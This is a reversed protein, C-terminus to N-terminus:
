KKFARVYGVLAKIDADSLNEAPKMRTKGGEKVGDKIISFCKEDTFTAQVQPDTLDKIDLKKGMKTDGKGAAGHCKACQKDWNQKADAAHAVSATALMLTVILASVHKM